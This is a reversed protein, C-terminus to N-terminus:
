LAYWLVFPVNLLLSDIRDFMGGHAGLFNSSDKMNTCRKLFSEALDGLVALFGCIIGLALYDFFPLKIAYNGDTKQGIYYFVLSVVTSFLIAGFLGEM